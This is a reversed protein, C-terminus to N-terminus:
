RFSLAFSCECAYIAMYLNQSLKFKDASWWGLFLSLAVNTGEVFALLILPVAVWTWSGAARIYNIYVTWNVAGVQREEEEGVEPVIAAEDIGPHLTNASTVPRRSSAVRTSSM